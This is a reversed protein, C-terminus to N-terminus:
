TRTTRHGDEFGSETERREGEPSLAAESLARRDPTRPGGDSGRAWFAPSGSKM